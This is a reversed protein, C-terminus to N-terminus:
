LGAAVSHEVVLGINEIPSPLVDDSTNLIGDRGRARIHYQNENILEYYLYEPESMSVQTADRVFVMSNEPLSAELVQLSEPYNGNQVKYFEIAQVVGTLNSKALEGRLEDYVGGEQVFGFYGLSAYLIFTFAIGAAGVIILKTHKISAGWIIAVIGFLVGILPIFSMGGIVYGLCGPSKKENEM